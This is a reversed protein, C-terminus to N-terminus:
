SRATSSAVSRPNISRARRDADPPLRWGNFYMRLQAGAMFALMKAHTRQAAWM